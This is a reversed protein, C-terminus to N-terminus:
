LGFYLYLQWHVVLALAALQFTLFATVPVVSQHGYASELMLILLVSTCTLLYKVGFFMLPGHGLYYRMVPNLEKAGRSVLELTLVTDAITLAVILIIAAVTKSGLQSIGNPVNVNRCKNRILMGYFAVVYTIRKV